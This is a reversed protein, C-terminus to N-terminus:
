AAKRDTQEHSHRSPPESAREPADPEHPVSSPQSAALRVSLAERPATSGWASRAARWAWKVVRTVAWGVVLVVPTAIAAGIVFWVALAKTLTDVADLFEIVIM